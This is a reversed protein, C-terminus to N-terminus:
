RGGTHRLVLDIAAAKSDLADDLGDVAADSAGAERARAKLVRLTLATLDERARLERRVDEDTRAMEPEPEPPSEGFMDVAADFTPEPEPEPGRGDRPPGDWTAGSLPRPLRDAPTLSQTIMPGTLLVPAARDLSAALEARRTAEVQADARLQDNRQKLASVQKDQTRVSRKIVAIEHAMLKMQEMEQALMVLRQKATAEDLGRAFGHAASPLM